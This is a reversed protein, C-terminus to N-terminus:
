MGLPNNHSCGGSAHSLTKPSAHIGGRWEKSFVFNYRRFDIRSALLGSLLGDILYPKM